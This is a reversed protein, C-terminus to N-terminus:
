VGHKSSSSIGKGHEHIVSIEAQWALDHHGVSSGKQRRGRRTLESHCSNLRVCNHSNSLSLFTCMQRMLYCKQLHVWKIPSVKQLLQLDVLVLINHRLVIICGSTFAAALRQQLCRGFQLSGNWPTDMASFTYSNWVM